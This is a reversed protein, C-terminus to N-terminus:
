PVQKLLSERLLVISPENINESERLALTIDNAFNDSNIELEAEALCLLAKAALRHDGKAVGIDHARLYYQRGLLPNSTRFFYLGTTAVSYVQEIGEIAKPFKKLAVEAERINGRKLLSYALNNLLLLDDPNAMLGEKAFHVGLDYNKASCAISSGCSFPHTSYPEELGWETAFDIAGALDLQFYSHWSSAEASRAFDIEMEDVFHPFRNRIVWEAHAVVSESPDTWARRFLRKAKRDNGFHLEAVGLSAILESFNFLRDPPIHSPEFQPFRPPKKDALIATNIQTSLLWPDDSKELAKNVLANARDPQDVHIFFRAGARIVFRSLPALDIATLICRQAKDPRGKITYLRALETWLLSNHTQTRLTRRTRAISDEPLLTEAKEGSNGLVMHALKLTTVSVNPQEIIFIAAEKSVEPENAIIGSHLLECARTLTPDERFDKRDSAIGRRVKDDIEFPQSRPTSNEKDGINWISPWKPVLLSRRADKTEIM